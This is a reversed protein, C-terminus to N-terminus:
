LETVQVNDVLLGTAGGDNQVCRFVLSGLGSLPNDFALDTAMAVIGLRDSITVDYKNLGDVKMEVRYWRNNEVTSPTLVSQNSDSGSAM